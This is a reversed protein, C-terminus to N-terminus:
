REVQFQKRLPIERQKSLIGRQRGENIERSSIGIELSIHFLHKSFIAGAIIVNRQEASSM